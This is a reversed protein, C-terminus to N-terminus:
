HFGKYDMNRKQRRNATRPHMAELRGTTTHRGNTRNIVICLQLSRMLDNKMEITLMHSLSAICKTEELRSLIFWNLLVYHRETLNFNTVVSSRSVNM